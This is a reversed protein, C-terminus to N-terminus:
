AIKTVVLSPNDYSSVGSGGAAVSTFRLSVQDEANLNRQITKSPTSVITLFANDIPNIIFPNIIFAAFSTLDEVGNVNAIVTVVESQASANVAIAIVISFEISYVGTSLVTITNTALDLITGSSPGTMKFDVIGNPTVPISSDDGYLSGYVPKFPPGPPVM